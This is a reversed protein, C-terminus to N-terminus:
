SGHLGSWGAFPDSAIGSTSDRWWTSRCRWIPRLAAVGDVVHAVVLYAGDPLAMRRSRSASPCVQGRRNRQRARTRAGGQAADGLRSRRRPVAGDHLTTSGKVAAAYKRSISVESPPAPGSRRRGHRLSLAGLAAQGPRGRPGGVPRRICALAHGRAEAESAQAAKALWGTRKRSRARRLRRALGRLVAVSQQLVQLSRVSPSGGSRRRVCSSRRARHVRLRVARGAGQRSRRGAGPDDGRRRGGAHGSGM